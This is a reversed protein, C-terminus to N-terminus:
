GVVLDADADLLGEANLLRLIAGETDVTRYPLVSAEWRYLGHGVFAVVLRRHPRRIEAVATKVLAEVVETRVDIDEPRARLDLSVVTWEAAPATTM